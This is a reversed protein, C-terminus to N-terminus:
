FGMLDRLHLKKDFYNITLKQCKQQHAHVSKKSITKLKDVAKSRLSKIM